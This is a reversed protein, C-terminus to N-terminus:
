VRYGSHPNYAPPVLEDFTWESVWTGYAGMAIVLSAYECSLDRQQAYTPVDVFAIGDGVSHAAVPRAGLRGSAPGILGGFASILVRRGRM